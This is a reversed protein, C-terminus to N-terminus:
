RGLVTKGKPQVTITVDTTAGPTMTAHGTRLFPNGGEAPMQYRDSALSISTRKGPLDKIIAIGQADTLASYRRARTFAQEQNDYILQGGDTRRSLLIGSTRAYNGVIGGPGPSWAINPSMSIGIGSVADGEETVVKIRCTATPEMPIEIEKRYAPYRQSVVISDHMSQAHKRHSVYPFRYMIQTPSASCSVWGDAIASLQIEVGRPVSPFEFSGDEEISTFDSWFLCNDHQPNEDFTAAVWLGVQGHTVPFDVNASLRGPLWRGPSMAVDEIVIDGEAYEYLDILDSFLAPGEEPLAVVLLTRADPDLSSTVLTGDSELRFGKSAEEGGPLLAYLRRRIQQGTAHHKATIKLQRGPVLTIGIPQDVPHGQGEHRTFDPHTVSLILQGTEMEEYAYRPYDVEATGQKGTKWSKKVSIGHASALEKRARLGHIQISAGVVPQGRQDVVKIVVHNVEDLDVPYAVNVGLTAAFVIGSVMAVGAALRRSLTPVGVDANSELRRVRAVAESRQLFALAVPPFTSRHLKLAMDALMKAYSRPDNGAAVGDSLLDCAFRHASTMGWVLPHPWLLIQAVRIAITWVLDRGKFHCCEHALVFGVQRRNLSSSLRTPMVIAPRLLGTALPVSTKSSVVVRPQKAMRLSRSTEAVIEKLREDAPESGRLLAYVRFRRFCLQVLYIVVVIIYLKMLTSPIDAFLPNIAGGTQFEGKAVASALGGLPEEPNASETNGASSIEASTGASDNPWTTSQPLASSGIFFPQPNPDVSVQPGWGRHLGSSLIIVGLGIAVGRWLMVQWFPNRSRLRFHLLWAVALLVTVRFFMLLLLSAQPTTVLDRM